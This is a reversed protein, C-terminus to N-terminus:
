RARRKRGLACLALAGVVIGVWGPEPTAIDPLAKINSLTGYTAPDDGFLQIGQVYGQEREIEITGRFCGPLYSIGYPEIPRWGTHDTIVRFAVGDGTDTPDYWGIEYEAPM